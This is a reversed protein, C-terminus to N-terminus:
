FQRIVLLVRFRCCLTQLNDLFELPAVTTGKFEFKLHGPNLGVTIYVLIM